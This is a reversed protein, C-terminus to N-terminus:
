LGGAKKHKRQTRPGTALPVLERGILFGVRPIFSSLLCRPEKENWKKIEIGLMKGLAHGTTNGKRVKPIVMAYFPKYVSPSNRNDWKVPYLTPHGKAICWRVVHIADGFELQAVQPNTKHNIVRM